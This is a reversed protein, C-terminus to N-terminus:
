VCVPQISSCSRQILMHPLCLSNVHGNHAILILVSLLATDRRYIDRGEMSTVIILFSHSSTPLLAIGLPSLAAIKLLAKGHKVSHQVEVYTMNKLLIVYAAAVAHMITVSPGQQWPYYIHLSLPKYIIEAYECPMSMGCSPTHTHQPPLFLLFAILMICLHSILSSLPTFIFISYSSTIYLLQLHLVCLCLCTNSLLFDQLSTM